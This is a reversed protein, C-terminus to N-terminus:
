ITAEEGEFAPEYRRLGIKGSFKITPKFTFEKRQYGEMEIVMLFSYENNIITPFTVAFRHQTELVVGAGSSIQGNADTIFPSGSIGIKTSPSSDNFREIRVHAGSIETGEDDVITPSFTYSKRTDTMSGFIQVINVIDDDVVLDRFDVDQIAAQYLPSITDGSFAVDQFVFPAGFFLFSTTGLHGMLINVTQDVDDLIFLPKDGNEGFHILDRIVVGDGTQSSAVVDLGGVLVCGTVEGSDAIYPKSGLMVLLSGYASLGMSGTIGGFSLGFWAAGSAWSRLDNDTELTGLQFDVDVTNSIENAIQVQGDDQIRCIVNERECVWDCSTSGTTAGIVILAITHEVLYWETGGSGGRIRRRDVYAPEAVSEAITSWDTTTEDEIRLSHIGISVQVMATGTENTLNARVILVEEDPIAVILYTGDNGAGSSVIVAGDGPVVGATLFTSGTRHIYSLNGSGPMNVIDTITAASIKTGGSFNPTVAYSM